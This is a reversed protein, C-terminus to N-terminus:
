SKKPPTASTATASNANQADRSSGPIFPNAKPGPVAGLSNAPSNNTVPAATAMVPKSVSPGGRCRYENRPSSNMMAESNNKPAVIRDNPSTMELKMVIMIEAAAVGSTLHISLMM